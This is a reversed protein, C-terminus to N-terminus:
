SVAGHVTGPPEQKPQDEERRALTGALPRGVARQGGLRQLVDEGEWGGRDHAHRRARVRRLRREGRGRGERGYGPPVADVELQVVPHHLAILRHGVPRDREVRLAPSFRQPDGEPPVGATRPGRVREHAREGARVARPSLSGPRAHGRVADLAPLLLSRRVRDPRQPEEPGAVRDRGGRRLGSPVDRRPLHRAGRRRAAQDRRPPRLRRPQAARERAGCRLAVVAVGLGQQAVRLAIGLALASKGSGVDGGLVVLDRRRLGGGLIRDVSPFGTPVTDDSIAGPLQQDVRAVLAEPSPASARRELRRPMTNEQADTRRPTQADLRISTHPGVPRCGGRRRRGRVGASGPRPRRAAVPGSRRGLPYGARPAAARRLAGAQPTHSPRPESAPDRAGATPAPPEQGVRCATAAAVGGHAAGALARVARRAKPRAGGCRRARPAARGGPDDGSDRSSGRSPRRWRPRRSTASVATIASRVRPPAPRPAPAAPWSGSCCPPARGTPSSGSSSSRRGSCRSWPRGSAPRWTCSARTARSPWRRARSYREAVPVRVRYADLKTAILLTRVLKRKRYGSWRCRVLLRLAASRVSGHLDLGHTPALASLRRALHRIPEDPELAVVEALHPNDAVLPAM